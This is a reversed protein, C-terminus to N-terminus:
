GLGPQTRGAAPLEALLRRVVSQAAGSSHTRAGCAGHLHQGGRASRASRLRRFKAHGRATRHRREAAFPVAAAPGAAARPCPGARRWARGVAHSEVLRRSFSRGPRSSGSEAFFDRPRSYEAVLIAGRAKLPPRTVTYLARAINKPFCQPWLAKRLSNDVIKSPKAHSILYIVATTAQQGGRRHARA